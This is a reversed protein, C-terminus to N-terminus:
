WSTIPKLIIKKRQKLVNDIVKEGKRSPIIIGEYINPFYEMLLFKSNKLNPISGLQMRIFSEINKLAFNSQYIFYGNSLILKNIKKRLNESTIINKINFLKSIQTDTLITCIYFDGEASVKKLHNFYMFRYIGKMRSKTFIFVNSFIILILFLKFIKRQMQKELLTLLIIWFPFNLFIYWKHLGSHWWIIAFSFILYIFFTYLYFLFDKRKKVINLIFTYIALLYVLIITGFFINHSLFKWLTIQHLGFIGSLLNMFYLKYFFLQFFHKISGHHQSKFINEYYFFWDKFSLSFHLIRKNLFYSGYYGIFICIITVFFITIFFSIEKKKKKLFLSIFIFTQNIGWLILANQHFFIMFIFLFSNTFSLFVFNGKERLIRLIIIFQLIIFPYIFGYSEFQLLTIFNITNFLIAFSLIVSSKGLLEELFIYILLFDVFFLFLMMLESFIFTLLLNHGTIYAIIKFPLYQILHHPHFFFKEFISIYLSYISDVNHEIQFFSIFLLIVWFFDTKKLTKLNM